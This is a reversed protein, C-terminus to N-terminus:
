AIYFTGKKVSWKRQATSIARDHSSRTAARARPGAPLSQGHANVERRVVGTEFQLGVQDGLQLGLSVVHDVDARM